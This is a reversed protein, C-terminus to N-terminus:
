HPSGTATWELIRSEIWACFKEVEDLATEIHEETANITPAYLFSPSPDEGLLELFSPRQRDSLLEIERKNVFFPNPARKLDYKAHRVDLSSITDPHQSQNRALVLGELINLDCGSKQFDIDLQEIFYTRYGTLWGKKFAMKYNKVPRLDNVKQSQVLRPINSLSEKFYLQLSAAIVSIFMQGLVRLSQDAELWENLFPPEPDESYPPRYPPEGSEILKKRTIYPASTTQYLQRLFELRDKLFVHVDV